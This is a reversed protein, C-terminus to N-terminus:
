SPIGEVIIQKTGDKETKKHTKMQKGYKKEFDTLKEKLAINEQILQEVKQELAKIKEENNKSRNEMYTIEEKYMNLISQTNQSEINKTEAQYKRKTMFYTSFFTIAAAIIATISDNLVTTFDM